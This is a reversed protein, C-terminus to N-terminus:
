RIRQFLRGPRLNFWTWPKYIAAGPTWSAVVSEARGVLHTVPLLGVGVDSAWRSDLSNDRHDGMVFLQGSPVVQAPRDDGALASGADFTVYTRGNPQREEVRAVPREPADLDLGPGLARQPLARGNVIVTGGRVEIQDGPLGIVRKIWVEEPNSPRRFVVVDGRALLRGFLRGPPLPPNFAVSARSWGYAFKSVVLYDGVVLGPEMSASPITFPQFAVTQILVAAALGAAVTRITEGPGPLADPPSLASTPNPPTHLSTSTMVGTLPLTGPLGAM